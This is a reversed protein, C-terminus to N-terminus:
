NAPPPQPNVVSDIIGRQDDDDLQCFPRQLRPHADLLAVYDYTSKTSYGDGEYYEHLGSHSVTQKIPRQKYGIINSRSFSQRNGVEDPRRRTPCQMGGNTPDNEEEFVPHTESNDTSFDFDTSPTSGGGMTVSGFAFAGAAHTKEFVNSYLDKNRLVEHRLHNWEKNVRGRKMRAFLEIPSRIMDLAAGNSSLFDDLNHLFRKEKTLDWVCTEGSTKRPM